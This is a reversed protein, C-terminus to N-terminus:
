IPIHKHKGESRKQLDCKDVREDEWNVGTYTLILRAPEALGRQDLYTIRYGSGNVNESM